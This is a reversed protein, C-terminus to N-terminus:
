HFAAYFPSKYYLRILRRYYKDFKYRFSQKHLLTLKVPYTRNIKVDMNETIEAIMKEFRLRFSNQSWEEKIQKVVPASSLISEKLKMKPYPQLYKTVHRFTSNDSVALPRESSIAQDTTAALGPMKRDYLFCNLTNQSCWYILDNKSMFNHTIIVEIGNKAIAMCQDALQQAYQHSPDTYSGHPINIRVVAKDFEKNVAQVVHEFGKGKTAFGFSGIIPIENEKTSLLGTYKDLPRPFSFVKKHKLTMSPDLVCYFDFHFPSCYVFPDNPLIELVLTGKLGPLKKISKTDLWGTTSFHYNFLYFDYGGPISLDNKNLEM